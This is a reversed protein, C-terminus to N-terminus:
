EFGICEAGYGKFGQMNEITEDKVLPRPRISKVPLFTVRGGKKEKLLNVAKKATGDDECVINQMTGGLATEMALEYGKPVEM